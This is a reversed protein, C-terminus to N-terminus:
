PYPDQCDFYDTTGDLRYCVLTGCLTPGPHRTATEGFNCTIWGACEISVPPSGTWVSQPCSYVFPQGWASAVDDGGAMYMLALAFFWILVIAKKM